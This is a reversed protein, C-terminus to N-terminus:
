RMYLEVRFSPMHALDEKLKSLVKELEHNDSPKPRWASPIWWLPLHSGSSDWFQWKMHISQQFVSFGHQLVNKKENPMPIFNSGLLLANLEDEPVDVM